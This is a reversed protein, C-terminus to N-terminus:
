SLPLFILPAAIDTYTLVLAIFVDGRANLHVSHWAAFHSDFVVTSLQENCNQIKLSVTSIM